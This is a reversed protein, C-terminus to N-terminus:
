HDNFAPNNANINELAAEAQWLRRFLQVQASPETEGSERVAKLVKELVDSRHSTLSGPYTPEDGIGFGPEIEFPVSSLGRGAFSAEHARYVDEMVKLLQDAEDSAAYLVIGDGRTDYEDGVSDYRKMVLSDTVRDYIKGKAALGAAEVAHVVDSFVKVSDQPRPNLYIRRTLKPKDGSAKKQMYEDSSWHMFTGMIERQAYLNVHIDKVGTELLDVDKGGETMVNLGHFKLAYHPTKNENLDKREERGKVYKRFAQKGQELRTFFVRKRDEMHSHYAPPTYIKLESAVFDALEDHLQVVESNTTAYEKDSADAPVNDLYSKVFFAREGGPKQLDGSLADLIFEDSLLPSDMQRAREFTMTPKKETEVVEIPHESVDPAAREEEAPIEEPEPLLEPVIPEDPADEEEKLLGQLGAKLELLLSRSATGGEVFAQLEDMRAFLERREREDSTEISSRTLAEAM